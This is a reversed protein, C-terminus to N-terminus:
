SSSIDGMAADITTQDAVNDTQTLDVGSINKTSTTDLKVVTITPCPAKICKINNETARYVAGSITSGTEGVWAETAAFEGWQKGNIKSKGIKGRLVAGGLAIASQEDSTLGTGSLDVTAVYCEAAYGGDACLTKSTNVRHVYYGGCMPFACKKLDQRVAFYGYNPNSLENEGTSVDTTASCAVTALAMSIFLTRM